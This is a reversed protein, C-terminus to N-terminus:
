GGDKGGRILRIPERRPSDLLIPQSCEPREPKDPYDPQYLVVPKGHSAQNSHNKVTLYEPGLGGCVECRWTRRLLARQFGQPLGMPVIQRVTLHKLRWRILNEGSDELTDITSYLRINEKAVEMVKPGGEEPAGVAVVFWLMRISEEQDQGGRGSHTFAVWSGLKM